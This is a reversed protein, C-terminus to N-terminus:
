TKKSCLRAQENGRVQPLEMSCCGLETTVFNIINSDQDKKYFYPLDPSGMESGKLFGGRSQARAAGERRLVSCLARFVAPARYNSASLLGPAVSHSALYCRVAVVKCLDSPETLAPVEETVKWRIFQGGRLLGEDLIQQVSPVFNM